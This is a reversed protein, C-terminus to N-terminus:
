ESLLRVLCIRGLGLQPRPEPRGALTTPQHLSDSHPFAVVKPEPVTPTVVDQEQERCALLTTILLPFYLLKKM